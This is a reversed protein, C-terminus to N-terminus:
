LKIRRHLVKHCFNCVASLDEQLEAGVREYTNHHVDTAENLECVECKGKARGLIPIRKEQWEDSRLYDEYLLDFEKRLELMAASYEASKAKRRKEELEYDFDPIPKRTAESEADRHRCLKAPMEAIYASVITRLAGM